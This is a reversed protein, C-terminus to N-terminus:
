YDMSSSSRRRSELMTKFLFLVIFPIFFFQYDFLWKLGTTLFDYAVIAVEGWSSIQQGITWFLGVVFLEFTAIILTWKLYYQRNAKALNEEEVRRLVQMMFAPNELRLRSDAMLDRTRKEAESPEM